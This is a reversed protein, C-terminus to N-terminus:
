RMELLLREPNELYTKVAQTFSAGVDGDVVRHDFSLALNMMKRIVIQGERVVPREVLNHVGMIAVEPHNIIPTALLGGLRGLSTITFTGDALDDPRSRRNRARESLEAIDAAIELLSKADVAKVVPVLLGAPSAAAIGINYDHKYIIEMREDDVSANMIPYEKMAFVIAKAIFPLYTLNVGQQTAVPKLDARMAVLKDMEVEEVYTFHPVTRKAKTMNAYIAKRLGKITERTEGQGAQPLTARPGRAASQSPAANPASLFRDLDSLTIRHHPGTGQILTLDVGKLSAQRRVHPTALPTGFASISPNQEPEVAVPHLPQVPEGDSDATHAAVHGTLFPAQSTSQMSLLAEGVAVISGPEAKLEVIHGSTPATIEVTAKDTLVSVIVQDAEVHDGAKVSWAVIEGEVVGEGIEPLPFDFTMGPEVVPQEAIAESEAPAAVEGGKAFYLIPQGVQAMDGPDGVLREIRGPHPAAVEVTAKDTLVSVLAQDAEVVDGAAVHWELIEGEVVGEGIDPLDFAESM